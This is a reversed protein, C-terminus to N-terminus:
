PTPSPEPTPGSIGSPRIVHPTIIVYLNTRTTLHSGNRFFVGLLPIDGIGPIKSLQRVDNEQLLGGIVLSEGDRVMASTLEQRVTIRPTNNVYDLITSVESFLQVTVHGDSAIRPLVQLSVGVNLYQINQAILTGSGSPVLVSNFIPVAEGSLISAIHGNLALIRPKGLIKAQGATDLAFIKAAFSANAVPRGGATPTFTIASLQGNSSFDIGLERSVDDSLEVIQTEFLVSSQPIDLLAITARYAEVEARTGTLIVTNLRRDVAVHENVRVGQPANAPLLVSTPITVYRPITLTANSSSSSSSSSDRPVDPPAFPSRPTFGDSVVTSGKALVGAIEGVDAYSLPIVVTVLANGHEVYQPVPAALFRAPAAIDVLIEHTVSEIRVDLPRAFYLDIVTGFPSQAVSEGQILGVEAHTPTLGRVTSTNLFFVRAHRTQAGFVEVVPRPGDYEAVVRLVDGPEVMTSVSRIVTSAATAPVEAAVMVAM